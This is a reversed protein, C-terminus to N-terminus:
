DVGRIDVIQHKGGILDEFEQLERLYKRREKQKEAYAEGSFKRNMAAIFDPTFVKRLQETIERIDKETEADIKIKDKRYQGRQPFEVVKAMTFNGGCEHILRTVGCEIDPVKQYHM